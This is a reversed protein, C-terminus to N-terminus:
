ATVEDREVPDDCWSSFSDRYSRLSTEEINLAGPVEGSDVPHKDSWILGRKKGNPPGPDFYIWGNTDSEADTPNWVKRAPDAADIMEGLPLGASDPATPAELNKM